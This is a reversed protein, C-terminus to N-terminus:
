RKLPHVIRTAIRLLRSSIVLGSRHAATENIEFGLKNKIIRFNVIVGKESAGELDSITLIPSDLTCSLVKEMETEELKGIFLIHADKIEDTDSIHRIIVKQNSIMRKSALEELKGGFPNLGIVSVVFPKSGDRIEAEHPWEIFSPLRWMYVAKLTYEGIEAIATSAPFLGSMCLFVFISVIGILFRRWTQRNQIITKM